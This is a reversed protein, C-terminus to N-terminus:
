RVTIPEQDMYPRLDLYLDPPIAAEVDWGALSPPVPLPSSSTEESPASPSDEGSVRKAPGEYGEFERYALPLADAQSAEHRRGCMCM